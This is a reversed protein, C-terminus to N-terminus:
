AITANDISELLRAHTEIVNRLADETHDITLRRHAAVYCKAATIIDISNANRADVEDAYVRLQEIVEIFREIARSMVDNAIGTRM